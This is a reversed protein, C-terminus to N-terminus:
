HLLLSSDMAPHCGTGLAEPGDESLRTIEEEAAKSRGRKGGGRPCLLRIGHGLGRTLVWVHHVAFYLHKM